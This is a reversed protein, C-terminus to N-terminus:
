SESKEETHCLALAALASAASLARESIERAETCLGSLSGNNRKM